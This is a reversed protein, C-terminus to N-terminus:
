KSRENKEGMTEFINLPRLDSKYMITKRGKPYLCNNEAYEVLVRHKDIEKLIIVEFGTTIQIM